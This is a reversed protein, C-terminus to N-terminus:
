IQTKSNVEIGFHNYVNRLISHYGGLVKSSAFVNGVGYSVINRGENGM